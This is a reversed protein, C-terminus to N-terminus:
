VKFCSTRSLVLGCVKRVNSVFSNCLKSEYIQPKNLSAKQTVWFLYCWIFYRYMFQFPHSLFHDHALKFFKGLMQRSPSLFFAFLRLWSLRGGPLSKFGQGVSYSDATNAVSWSTRYRGTVCQSSLFRAYQGRLRVWNVVIVTQV